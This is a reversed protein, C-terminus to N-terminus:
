FTFFPFTATAPNPPRPDFMAVARARIPTPCIAYFYFAPICHHEERVVTGKELVDLPM